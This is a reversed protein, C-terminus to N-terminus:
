GVYAVVGQVPIVYLQRLYDTLGDMDKGHRMFGDEFISSEGEDLLNGARIEFVTQGDPSRVDADYSGREDLNVHYHFTRANM